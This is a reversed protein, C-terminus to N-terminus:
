FAGVNAVSTMCIGIQALKLGFYKNYFSFSSEMKGVSMNALCSFNNQFLDSFQLYPMLPTVFFIKTQIQLYNYPTMHVYHLINTYRQLEPFQPTKCIQTLCFSYFQGFKPMTFFLHSFRWRFDANKIHAWAVVNYIYIM